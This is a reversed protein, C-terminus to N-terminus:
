AARRLSRKNVKSVAVLAEADNFAARVNCGDLSGDPVAGRAIALAKENSLRYRAVLEVATERAGPAEVPLRIFRSELRGKTQARLKAFENTTAIVAHRAPLTDLFTLMESVASSSMQDIEDIRKVTWPSFLNGFRSGVRWSRVLDVSLSQGNVPEVAFPSGAIEGALIDALTTKGTGPDGDILLRLPSHKAAVARAAELISAAPGFLVQACKHPKTRM